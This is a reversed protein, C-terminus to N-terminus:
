NFWGTLRDWFSRQRRVTLSVPDAYPKPWADPDSCLEVSLGFRTHPLPTLTADNVGPQMRLPLRGLMVPAPSKQQACDYQFEVMMGLGLLEGSEKLGSRPVWVIPGAIEVGYPLEMRMVTSSFVRTSDGTIGVWADFTDVGDPLELESSSGNKDAYFGVTYHGPVDHRDYSGQAAEPEPELLQAGATGTGAMLILVLFILNLSHKFTM